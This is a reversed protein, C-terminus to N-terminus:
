SGSGTGGPAVAARGALLSTRSRCTPAAARTRCPARHPPAIAAQYGRSEPRPRRICRCCRSRLRSCGVREPGPRRRVRRDPSGPPSGPVCPTWPTHAPWDARWSCSPPPGLASGAPRAAGAARVAAARDLLFSHATEDRKTQPEDHAARWERGLVDVLELEAQEPGIGLVVLCEVEAVAHPTARADPVEEELPHAHFAVDQELGLVGDRAAARHLRQNSRGAQHEVQEATLVM